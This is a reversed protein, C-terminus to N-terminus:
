RHSATPRFSRPGLPRSASRSHDGGPPASGSRYRPAPRPRRHRPHALQELAVGAAAAIGTLRQRVVSPSDEAAFLLVRGRCITPFRRLCPKGSAVAVAVDLALFSKCCKPEGGLIGVAESSWLGEILWRGEEPQADLQHALRVPLASM